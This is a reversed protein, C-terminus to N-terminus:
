DCCCKKCCECKCSCDYAVLELLIQFTEGANIISSSSQEKASHLQVSHSFTFELPIEIQDSLQFGWIGAGPVDTHIEFLGTIQKGSADFFRRPNDALYKRFMTNVAGPSGSADLLNEEKFSNTIAEAVERNSLLGFMTNVTSIGVGTIPNELTPYSTKGYTKYIIYDILWDNVSYTGCPRGDRFFRKDSLATYGKSSFSLGNGCADLDEFGNQFAEILADMFTPTLDEGSPGDTQNSSGLADPDDIFYGIPSATHVMRIWRFYRNLQTFCIHVKVRHGPRNQRVLRIVQCRLPLQVLRRYKLVKKPDTM